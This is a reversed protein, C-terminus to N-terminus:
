DLQTHAFIQFCNSKAACNVVIQSQCLSVLRDPMPQESWAFTQTRVPLLHELMSSSRSPCLPNSRICFNNAALKSCSNQNLFTNPWYRHKKSGLQLSHRNRDALCCKNVILCCQSTSSASFIKSLNFLRKSLFYPSSSTLANKLAKSMFLSPVRSRLSNLRAKQSNFCKSSKLNLNSNKQKSDLQMLIKQKLTLKRNKLKREILKIVM